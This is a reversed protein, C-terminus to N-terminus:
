PRPTEFTWLNRLNACIQPSPFLSHFHLPLRLEAKADEWAVTEIRGSRFDAETRALAEGHWAPSTYSEWGTAFDGWLQEIIELKEEAPLSRLEAISM